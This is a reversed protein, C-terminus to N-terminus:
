SVTIGPLSEIASVIPIVNVSNFYIQLNDFLYNEVAKLFDEISNTEEWFKQYTPLVQIRRTYEAERLDETLPDDSKLVNIQGLTAM